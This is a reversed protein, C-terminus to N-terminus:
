TFNSFLAILIRHSNCHSIEIDVHKDAWFAMKPSKPINKGLSISPQGGNQGGTQFLMRKTMTSNQPTKIVCTQQRHLRENAVGFVALPQQFDNGEQQDEAQQSPRNPPIKFVTDSQKLALASRTM